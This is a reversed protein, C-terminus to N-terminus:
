RQFNKEQKKTAFVSLIIFWNWAGRLSKTNLYPFLYTRIQYAALVLKRYNKAMHLTAYSQNGRTIFLYSGKEGQRDSKETLFKLLKFSKKKYGYSSKLREVVNLGKHGSNNKKEDIKSIYKLDINQGFQVLENVLTMFPKILCFM